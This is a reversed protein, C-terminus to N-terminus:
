ETDMIFVAETTYAAHHLTYLPVYCLKVAILGINVYWWHPIKANMEPM